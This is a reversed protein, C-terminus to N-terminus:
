EEGPEVEPENPEPDPVTPMDGVREVLIQVGDSIRTVMALQEPRGDVAYMDGLVSHFAACARNYAKITDNNYSRSDFTKPFGSLTGFTGNADIIKADVTYIERQM